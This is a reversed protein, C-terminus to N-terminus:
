FIKSIKFRDGGERKADYCASDALHILRLKSLGNVPYVSIGISLTLKQNKMEERVKEILRKSIMEAKDYGAEVLLVIFEDGGYRGIVDINRINEKMIDTIRKLMDDGMLHGYKDNYNKFNDIDIFLISFMKSYRKSREIEKEIEEEIKRRNAINTLPDTISYTEVEKFSFYNHVTIALNNSIATLTDIEEELFGDVIDKSYTVAGIVDEGIILPFSIESKIKDIVKVYYKDESVDPAYYYKKTNIANLTISNGKLKDSFSKVSKYGKWAIPVLLENKKDYWFVATYKICLSEKLEKMLNNLVKKIDLSSILCESTRYLLNIKEQKKKIDEFTKANILATGANLAFLEVKKLDDYSFFNPKDSDAYFIGIIKEKYTLPYALVSRRGKKLAVPNADKYNKLDNIIVPKKTKLITGSIGKKLRATSKYTILKKSGQYMEFALPFLRSDELILLSMHNVKLVDIGRRLIEKIVEKLNLKSIVYQSLRLIKLFYEYDKERLEDCKRM